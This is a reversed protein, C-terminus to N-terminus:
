NLLRKRQPFHYWNAASLDRSRRMFIVIEFRFPSYKYVCARTFHRPLLFGWRWRVAPFRGSRRRPTKRSRKKRTAPPPPFITRCEFSLSRTTRGRHIRKPVSLRRRSPRRAALNANCGVPNKDDAHESPRDPHKLPVSNLEFEVITQVMEIRQAPVISPSKRFRGFHVHNARVLKGSAHRQGRVIPVHLTRNERWRPPLQRNSQLRAPSSQATALKSTSISNARM